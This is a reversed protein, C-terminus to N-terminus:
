FMIIGTEKTSKMYFKNTLLAFDSNQISTAYSNIEKYRLLSMKNIKYMKYRYKEGESFILTNNYYPRDKAPPQLCCTATIGAGLHQLDTSDPSGTVTKIHWEVLFIGPQLKEDPVKRIWLM